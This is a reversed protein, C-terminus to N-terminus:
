AWTLKFLVAESLLNFGVDLKGTSGINFDYEISHCKINQDILWGLVSLIDVESLHVKFPASM